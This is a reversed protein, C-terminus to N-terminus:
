ILFTAFRLCVVPIEVNAIIVKLGTERSKYLSVSIGEFSTASEVVQDFNTKAIPSKFKIQSNGHATNFNSAPKISQAIAGVGSMITDESRSSHHDM